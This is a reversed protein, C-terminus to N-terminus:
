VSEPEVGWAAALQSIIAKEEVLFVNDALAVYELDAILAARQHRPDADRIRAIAHSIMKDDVGKAYVHLAESVIIVVDSPLSAPLWESLKRTIAELEKQSLEDDARHALMLYVLALDHVPTWDTETFQTNMVSWLRTRGEEAPHVDWRRAVASIFRGEEHMYWDDNLALQVLDYLFSRRMELDAFLSLSRISKSLAIRGEESRVTQVAEDVVTGVKERSVSELTWDAVRDVIAERYSDPLEESSRFALSVYVTALRGAMDIDLTPTM